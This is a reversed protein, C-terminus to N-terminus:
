ETKERVIFYYKVMEILCVNVVGLAGVIAFQGVTLPVIHLLDRLPAFLFVPVLLGVSAAFAFFLYPNSFFNIKWIPRRLSRLSFVFFFANVALSTFVMTRITEIPLGHRLLATFLGLLILDSMIGVLFILAKMERTFFSSQARPKRKMADAEKKEFAFAFNFFGEGVINMWLIQAPVIPLPLGMLLAGSVLVIETFSTALLFTIVKRINDIIARGEEIAAVITSFSDNLLVLDAAEKAVDTGSGLAIGIDAHRLAPADNVGDGTMAVVAGEKRWADVISYKQHPLVRSFISIAKIDLPKEEELASGEVIASDGHNLELEDAIIEATLRHDGTVIIPRIGAAKAIRLSERADSRLPDRLGINGLLTLQDFLAEGEPIKKIRHTACAVVRVGRSVLDIYAQEAHKRNAVTLKSRALIIEPAGSVYLYFYGDERSKYLAASFRKETDFPYFSILDHTKEFEEKSIGASVGALLLAQDTAEGRVRWESLDAEPNEIFAASTLTGCTLLRIKAADNEAVPVVHSVSMKGETLTGTKDVLIVNTSGLTEASKLSKMLGGKKLIRETGLALIVTIAIPLGEPVASVAIAVSSLFMTSFGEGRLIGAMFLISAAIVVFVGIFRSIRELHRQFPTPEEISEDISSAIEGLVTSRGTAVVVGRAKGSELFTGAYLMNARDAATTAIALPAEEKTQAIWEGSLISENARANSVSIVRADAEISMGAEVEVIDGPVVDRAAIEQLTGGRVVRARHEITSLLADFARSARGEQLVGISTNILLAFFIIIADTTDRLVFFTILGAAVLIVVLPNEIQKWVLRVFRWERKKTIANSGHTRRSLKVQAEDLGHEATVHFLRLVEDAPLAHWPRM